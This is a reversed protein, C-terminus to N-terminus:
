RRSGEENTGEVRITNDNRVAHEISNGKIDNSAGVRYTSDKEATQDKLTEGITQQDIFRTSAENIKRMIFASYVRM